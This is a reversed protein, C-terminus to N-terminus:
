KLTSVRRRGYTGRRTDRKKKKEWRVDEVALINSKERRVWEEEVKKAVMREKRELRSDREGRVGSADCSGAESTACTPAGDAGAVVASSDVM